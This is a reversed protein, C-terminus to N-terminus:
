QHPILQWQWRRISWRQSPCLYKESPNWKEPPHIITNLLANGKVQQANMEEGFTEGERM